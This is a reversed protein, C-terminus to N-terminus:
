KSSAKEKVLQRLPAGSGPQKLQYDSIVVGNDPNGRVQWGWWYTGVHRGLLPREATFTKFHGRVKHLATARHGGKGDSVSGGGPLIITHYRIFKAPTKRRKEAGSRSLGIKGSEETQVNRCNILSLATFVPGALHDMFAIADENVGKGDLDIYRAEIYQGDADYESCIALPPFAIGTNVSLAFIFGIRDGEIDEGFQSTNIRLAVCGVDGFGLIPGNDDSALDFWYSLDIPAPFEFWMSDYPMKIIGPKDRRENYIDAAVEIDFYTSSGSLVETFLTSASKDLTKNLDLNNLMEPYRRMLQLIPLKTTV